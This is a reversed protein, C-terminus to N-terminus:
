GHGLTEPTTDRKIGRGTHRLHLWRPDSSSWARKVDVRLSNPPISANCMSATDCATYPHKRPRTVPTFALSFLRRALNTVRTVGTVHIKLPTHYYTSM